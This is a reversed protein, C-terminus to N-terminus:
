SGQTRCPRWSRKATRLYAIGWDDGANLYDCEQICRKALQSFIFTSAGRMELNSKEFLCHFSRQHSTGVSFAEVRGGVLAVVGTLPLRDHLVQRCAMLEMNFKERYQVPVTAIKQQAWRDLLELCREAMPPAYAIIQPEYLSSFHRYERRKTKFHRGALTALGATSYHYEEGQFCVKFEASKVLQPWLPYRGWIYCISANVEHPNLRRLLDFAYRVHKLSLSQSLPPGWMVKNPGVEAILYLAKAHIHIRLKLIHRWAVMHLGTLSCLPNDLRTYFRDLLQVHKPRVLVLEEVSKGLLTNAGDLKLTVSRRTLGHHVGALQRHYGRHRTLPSDQGLPPPKTLPSYQIGSVFQSGGVSTICGAKTM